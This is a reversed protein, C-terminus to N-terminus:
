AAQRFRGQEKELEEAAEVSLAAWPMKELRKRGIPEDTEECIGYSGDKIKALAIDIERLRHFERERLGFTVNQDQYTQAQDGDETTQDKEVHFENKEHDNIQNLYQTKLELLKAKQSEIFKKDFPSGM